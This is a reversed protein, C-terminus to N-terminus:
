SGAGSSITSIVWAPASSALRSSPRLKPESFDGAPANGAAPRAAAGSPAQTSALRRPVRRAAGQVGVDRGRGHVCGVRERGLRHHGSEFVEIRSRAGPGFPEEEVMTGPHHQQAQQGGQQQAPLGRLQRQVRAELLGERLPMGVDDVVQGVLGIQAHLAVGHADHDLGAVARDVVAVVQGHQLLDAVLEVEHGADVPREHLRQPRGVRAPHGDGLVPQVAVRHHAVAVVPRRLRQRLHAGVDLARALDALDDRGVAAGADDEHREQVHIRLRALRQVVALQLPPELVQARLVVAVRDRDVDGPEGLHHAVEDLSQALHQGEERDRQHDAGAHQVGVGAARAAGRQHHRAREDGHGPLGAHQRQEPVRQVRVRDEHGEEHEGDAHAM